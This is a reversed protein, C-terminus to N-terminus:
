CCTAFEIFMLSTLMDDTASARTRIERM